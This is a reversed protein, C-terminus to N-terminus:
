NLYNFLYPTVNEILRKKWLERLNKAEWLEEDLNTPLYSSIKAEGVSLAFLLYLFM